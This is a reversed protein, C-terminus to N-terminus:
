KGFPCVPFHCEPCNRCLGGHGMLAIEKRTPEEGALILPLILDFLTVKHYFVCAPLGLLPTRGMRAYLFMAGPLVPTGYFVIRAGAQRIGKRTVDDPDVSMGGTTIILDCGSDILTKITGAIRSVKDPVTEKRIIECGYAELKNGVWEEFGDQVRGTYFESGTVVVGVKKKSFPKISVVPGSRSCFTEARLIGKEPMTLPIIRTAAVIDGAKCVSNNHLTSVIINPILNIRTLDTMRIKLLGSIQTILSIKGEVPGQLLLHDGKLAQALREAADNEHLRGPPIDLVFLTEKGMDLLAPINEEQIIHGKKFAAGKYSGPVIRTLDHGLVMGVAKQIKVKKM